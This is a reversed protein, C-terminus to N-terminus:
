SQPGVRGVQAPSTAYSPDHRLQMEEWTGLEEPNDNETTQHPRAGFKSTGEPEKRALRDLVMRRFMRWSGRHEHWTAGTQLEVVAPMLALGDLFDRTHKDVADRDISQEIRTRIEDSLSRGSKAMAAQLRAYLEDPLSVKYQRMM